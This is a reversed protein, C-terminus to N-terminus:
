PARLAIAPDTRAAKRAPIITAAIAVLLLAVAVAAHTWPDRANVDHLFAQLFQAVWFTVATGMVLGIAVPTLLQRFLMRRLDRPTAGLSLRVGLETRRMVLNFSQVAYLGIMALVLAVAGFSSLLEARFKQDLVGDNFRTSFSWFSVRTPSLGQDKLRRTLDSVTLNAGPALRAAYMMFRFKDPGSPVYLSPSPEGAYSGRVDSTVGVVLRDVDGPLRLYRGVAERPPVGPWVLDVGSVSLMGVPALSQVEAKSMPRGAIMRMGLTEVFDDAVPWRQGRQDGQIM